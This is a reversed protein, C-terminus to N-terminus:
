SRDTAHDDQPEEGFWVMEMAWRTPGKCKPCILGAEDEPTQKYRLTYHGDAVERWGCIRAHATKQHRCHGAHTYGRCQCVYESVDGWPNCLVVYSKNKDSSSPVTIAQWGMLSRCEQVPVLEYAVWQDYCQPLTIVTPERVEVRAQAGCEEVKAM